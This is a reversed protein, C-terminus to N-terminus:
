KKVPYGSEMWAMFGGKVNRVDTYGMEILKESAMMSRHGSRCYVYVPASKDIGQVDSDFSNGNIDANISGEVHGESVEGPTRVDLVNTQGDTQLADHLQMVSVNKVEVKTQEVQNTTANNTNTPTGCSIAVISVFGILGLFVRKM